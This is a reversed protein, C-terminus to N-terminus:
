LRLVSPNREELKFIKTAKFLISVLQKAQLKDDDILKNM